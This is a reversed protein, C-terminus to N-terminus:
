MNNYVRNKMYEAVLKCHTLSLCNIYFLIKNKCCQYLSVHSNIAKDKNIQKVWTSYITYAVITIMINYASCRIGTGRIGLVIHKWTIECNIINSIKRWLDYVMSCEYLMHKVTHVENCKECSQLVTKNWISVTKGCIVTNNILKYSFEKLKQIPMQIVKTTYIDTWTMQYSPINFEKSWIHEMKPRQYKRCVFVDYMTKNKLVHVNMCQKNILIICETTKINIYKAKTLDVGCLAQSVTKKVKLYESIWNSRCKLRSFIEKETIFSGDIILDKVYMIGSEIWGKEYLCKGKYMFMENGWVVESLIDDDNKKAKKYKCMNFSIFVHQYFESLRTIIPFTKVSTFNCKLIGDITFGLEQLQTKLVGTWKSKTIIHRIWSAKISRVKSEVDVMAIGGRNIDGILTKRQIREKNFWMFDYLIRNIEKIHSEKVDLLMFNYILSSIGLTKVLMSKGFISLEREKWSSLVRKLKDIKPKWNYENCKEVDYGIYIGLCKIPEDTFRLKDYDPPHDKYNGLWMGVTKDLNLKLGSVKTFRQILMIANEISIVDQLFLNTDDAFQSLKYEYQGVCIGKIDKDQRIACAMIETSIIFLLCSVPCGQKIARSPYIPSTLWGNNKFIMVPKTYLIKVWRLFNNGFNFKKLAEMMFNWELSDYAKAFDLSLLCGPLDQSKTYDMIDNILRVNHGIYRNKIYSSQDENIIEKIVKQLRRSLVFAILKYDCNTLSIPRYNNLLNTEGKKYLLTVVAKKMSECLEWKEFSEIVMNYVYKGIFPWCKQYFEFTLGDLGPSKNEKLNKVVDTIEDFTISAECMEKSSNSLVDTKVTNIFERVEHDSCQKSSYLDSYFNCIEGLIGDSDTTKEGDTKKLEKIVNSGQRQSELRMFYRTSKEGEQIWKARSRVQIGKAKDKYLTDLRSELETKQKHLDLLHTESGGQEIESCLLDLLSQAKREELVENKKKDTAYRISFEKTKIKIIEWLLRNSNLSEFEKATNDTLTRVGNVYDIDSLLRNNLKWYGPGRHSSLSKFEVVIAMHDGKIPKTTKFSSLKMNFVESVFVYDIRSKGKCKKDYYTFRNKEQQSKVWSDDLKCMKILHELHKKSIDCTQSCPIRDQDLYCCNMDGCLIVNNENMTYQTIWKELKTFFEKRVHIANPAYASVITYVENNSCMKCNLLVIRGDNSKHFNICEVNTTKNILIAVGRSHPSDSISHYVQGGWQSNFIKVIDQTCFTEQLCVIDAQQDKLWSFTKLRNINNHLGRVNLSIIKLNESAMM